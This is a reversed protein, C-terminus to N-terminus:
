SQRRGCGNMNIQVQQVGVTDTMTGYLSVLNFPDYNEQSIASTELTVTPATLDVYIMQPVGSVTNGVWTTGNTTLMYIGEAPPTWTTEWEAGTTEGNAWSFQAIVTDDILVDLSQLEDSSGFYGTIATSDLSTLPANPQVIAVIDSETLSARATGNTTACNGFLDCASLAVTTTVTQTPTTLQYLKTATFLATFWDAAQYDRQVFAEAGPCVFGDEILNYDIASCAVRNTTGNVNIVDLTLRPAETDIEGVWAGRLLRTHGFNDTALLDIVHPGELGAPATFQWTSLGGGPNDLTVPYRGNPDALAAVAEAAIAQEYVMVEDIRGDFTRVGGNAAGITLPVGDSTIDAGDVDTLTGVAVGDHYVVVTAGDYTVAVHNWGTHIINPSLLEQTAGGVVIRLGNVGAAGGTEITLNEPTHGTLTQNADSNLGDWEFWMALTVAHQGLPAIPVSLFQDTGNFDASRGFQGVVGAAPCTDCVARYRTPTSDAFLQAGAFEEFSLALVPEANDLMTRAHRFSIALEAVGSAGAFTDTIVGEIVPLNPAIGAIVTSLPTTVTIDAFPPQSDFAVPATLESFNGVADYFLVKLTYDGDPAVAARYDHTWRTGNLTAMQSGGLTVGDTSVVDIVVEEVGSLNDTATGSFPLIWTGESQLQPQRVETNGARSPVASDITGTAATGDVRVLSSSSGMNGVADFAQLEITHDGEGDPIFIFLWANGDRDASLWEGGNVRYEVREVPSTVDRASALLVIDSVNGIFSTPDLMLEVTPNDADITIEHTTRVDTWNLQYNFLDNITEASLVSEYMMLEDIDGAFAHDGSSSNGITLPFSNTCTGTGSAAVARSREFGNVYLIIEGGGFTAVVHNWQNELLPATTQAPLHCGFTLALATLNMSNPNIYFTYNSESNSPYAKQVVVQRTAKRQTPRLWLAVTFQDNLDREIGAGFNLVDDVGDFQVGTRFEGDVGPNPCHVDEPNCVLGFQGIPDFYGITDAPEDFRFHAKPATRMINGVEEASLVRM